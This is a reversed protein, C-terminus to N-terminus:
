GSGCSHGGRASASPVLVAVAKGRNTITFSEGAKVQRLLEPLKTKAESLGIETKMVGEQVAFRSCVVIYVLGFSILSGASALNQRRTQAPLLRSPATM